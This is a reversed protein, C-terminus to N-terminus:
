DDGAPEAQRVRAAARQGAMESLALGLLILALAALATWRPEEGLLLIGIAVAWLPILYNIFAVFSPGALAILRLFVVPAVASALVALAVGALLGKASASMIQAPLGWFGIPVMIVAGVIMTGAAAVIPDAPPRHRAIIANAAYCFAAILTALEWWIVTGEGRLELLAEPGILVVIGIFGLFFGILKGGSLTEDPVFVHALLLTTLPMVSMLIGALGSDIQQQAASILWFPLCNGAIAMALSYTWFRATRPFRQGRALVVLTLLAAALIMRGTVLAIPSFAEIALETIGFASGWLAVITFLLLWHSLPRGNM